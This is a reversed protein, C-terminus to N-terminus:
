PFKGIPALEEILIGVAEFCNWFPVKRVPEEIPKVTVPEAWCRPIPISLDM